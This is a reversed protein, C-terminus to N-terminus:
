EWVRLRLILDSADSLVSGHIRHDAASCHWQRWGRLVGCALPLCALYLWGCLLYLRLTLVSLSFLCHIYNMKKAFFLILSSETEKTGSAAALLLRRSLGWFFVFPIGFPFFGALFYIFYFPKVYAKVVIRYLYVVLVQACPVLAM